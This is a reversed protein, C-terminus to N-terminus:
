LKNVLGYLGYGAIKAHNHARKGEELQLIRYKLTNGL